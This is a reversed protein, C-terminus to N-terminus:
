VINEPAINQCNNNGFLNEEDANKTDDEKDSLLEVMYNQQQQQEHNTWEIYMVWNMKRGKNLEMVVGRAMGLSIIKSTLVFPNQHIVMRLSEVKAIVM